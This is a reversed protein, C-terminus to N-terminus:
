PHVYVKGPKMAHGWGLTEGDAFDFNAGPIREAQILTGLEFYVSDM